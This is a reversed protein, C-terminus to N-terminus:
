DRREEGKEQEARECELGRKGIDKEGVDTRNGSRKNIDVSRNMKVRRGVMEEVLIMREKASNTEEGERMM